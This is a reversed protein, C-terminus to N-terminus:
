LGRVFSRVTQNFKDAEVYFLVHGGKEFPVFEAQPIQSAIWKGEETGRPFTGSNGSMVLVPVTIAPLVDTYDSYVYDSYLAIGIHTPVNLTEEQMWETGAPQKGDGFMNPVFVNAFAARDRAYNKAFTNLAATNHERMSHCNWVGDSFPYPTMDILGLGALQGKEAGFQRWYALMMPGGMSWGMLMVKKLHLYEILEHIDQALRDLTYGQLGKSSLGHGRLDLTVVQFEDKLVATNQRFFRLSCGWGHVLLIPRGEGESQYHIYAGDSTKMYGEQMIRVGMWERSKGAAM